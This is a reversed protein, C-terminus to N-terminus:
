VCNRVPQLQTALNPGRVDGSDPAGGAGEGGSDVGDHGSALSAAIAENEVALDLLTMATGSAHSFADSYESKVSKVPSPLFAPRETPRQSGTEGQRQFDGAGGGGDPVPPLDEDRRLAFEQLKRMAFEMAGEAEDEDSESYESATDAGAPAVPPVLPDNASHSRPTLSGDRKRKGQTGDEEVALLEEYESQM